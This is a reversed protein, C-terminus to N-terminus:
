AKCPYFDIFIDLCNICASHYLLQDHKANTLQKEVVKETVFLTSAIEKSSTNVYRTLMFCIKPNEPLTKLNGRIINKLEKFEVSDLTNENITSKKDQTLSASYQSECKKKGRLYNM